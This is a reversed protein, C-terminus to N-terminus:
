FSKALTWTCLYLYTTLRSNTLLDTGISHKTEYKIKGMQKQLIHYIIITPGQHRSYWEKGICLWFKYGTHDCLQIIFDKLWTFCKNFKAKKPLFAVLFLFILLFLWNFPKKTFHKEHQLLLKKPMYALTTNLWLLETHM